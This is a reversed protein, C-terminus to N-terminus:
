KPLDDKSNGEKLIELLKDITKQDYERTELLHLIKNELEAIKMKLEYIERADDKEDSEPFAANLKQLDSEDATSRDNLINRLKYYNMNIKKSVVTLKVGKEKNILNVKAKFQEHDTM